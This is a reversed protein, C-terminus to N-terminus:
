AARSRRPALLSDLKEAELLVRLPPQDSRLYREGERRSPFARLVGSEQFRKESHSRRRCVVAWKVQDNGLAPALAGILYWFARDNAIRVESVDVLLRQYGVGMLKLRLAERLAQMTMLGRDDSGLPRDVKLFLYTDCDQFAFRTAQRQKLWDMAWGYGLWLAIAVVSIAIGAVLTM